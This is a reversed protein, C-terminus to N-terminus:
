MKKGHKEVWIDSNGTSFGLVAGRTKRYLNESLQIVAAICYSCVACCYWSSNPPLKSVLVREASM